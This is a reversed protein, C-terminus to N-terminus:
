KAADNVPLALPAAVSRGHFQVDSSLLCGPAFSPM